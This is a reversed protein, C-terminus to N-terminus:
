TNKRRRNTLHKRYKMTIKANFHTYRLCIPEKGMKNKNYSTKYYEASDPARNKFCRKTRIVNEVPLTRHTRTYLETIHWIHMVFIYIYQIHMVNCLCGMRNTNMSGLKHSM